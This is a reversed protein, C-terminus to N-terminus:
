ECLGKILAERADSYFQINIKTAMDDSLDFLQKRSSVPMLLMEAGKEIAIEAVSVANHVPDISGGLNLGGVLVLGGKLDMWGLKHAERAYLLLDTSPLGLLKTWDTSLLNEGQVGCLYGLFLSYAVVGPTVIPASRHKTRRGELLGSQQYSSAINQATSNLTTSSFRTPYAHGMVDKIADLHLESGLPLDLIVDGTLRFLSDRAFACIAALLSRGLRDKVWFYLLGRFLPVSKDLSYLQTIFTATKNRSSVTPKSLINESVIAQLYQAKTYDPNASNLLETLENLM